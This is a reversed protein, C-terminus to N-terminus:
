HEINSTRRKGNATGATGCTEKVALAGGGQVIATIVADRSTGKWVKKPHNNQLNSVPYNADEEDASISAINDPYIVKM